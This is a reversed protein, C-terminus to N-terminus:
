PKCFAPVAAEASGTFRDWGFDQYPRTSSPVPPVCVRRKAIGKLMCGKVALTNRSFTQVDEIFFTKEGDLLLLVGPLLADACSVAPNVTLSFAGTGCYSRTWQLSEFQTMEGLKEFAFNMLQITM